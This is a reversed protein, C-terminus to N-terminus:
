NLVVGQWYAQDPRPAGNCSNCDCNGTYNSMVNSTIADHNKWTLKTNIWSTKEMQLYGQGPDVKGTGNLFFVRSNNGVGKDWDSNWTAEENVWDSYSGEYYITVEEGSYRNGDAIATKEVDIVTTPIYVAHLDPYSPFANAAISVIPLGNVYAPIKVMDVGKGNNFGGVQYSDTEGDGNEDIPILSVSGDYSYIPFIAVDAGDNFKYGSLAAKKTTEGKENTIHVEWHDFKCDEVAPAEVSNAMETIHSYSKNTFTGTALVNGQQDIFMATYKNAFSPYLVVNKNHGAPIEEMKTSGANVWYDLTESGAIDKLNSEATSDATSVATSNDTIYRVNLLQGNYMYAITYAYNEITVGAHKTAGYVGQGGGYLQGFSILMDCEDGDQHVHNSDTVQNGNADLPHGYRPNAYASCNEGEEVRVWPYRAGPNNSNTFQCYHYDAWSGLKVVVNECTLFNATATQATKGNAAPTDTNGILMGARRYAHWKYASTVDNYVDLRAAVTVNEMIVYTSDNDDWRGGIVGGVPADFDGWLSGVVVDYGVQINKFIHTNSEFMLSGDANRRPSVEGVVGGTARQYNAIKSNYISINEFTCNGQSYGVLIGMDVCEMTINANIMKVNKITAEVVSAFLGGGAMSYSYKSGLDWGHQYLGNITYGAGDFTGNFTKGDSMYKKSEYGYGIPDFNVNDLYIDNSLQIFQGEYTVGADVQDRFYALQHADAILYPDNETGNGGAFATASSGDWTNNTDAIMSVESFSAMAIVVDGTLPDYSFENHNVPTDVQIMAVTEGNEVHYLRINGNNMGAPLCNKLTVLVPVTNDAVVGEVHIDLPILVESDKPNLDADSTEKPTVTLTLSDTDLKAGAPVTLSIDNESAVADETVIGDISQVEIPLEIETDVGPVLIGEINHTSWDETVTAYENLMSLVPAQQKYTLTNWIDNVEEVLQKLSRTVTQGFIYGEATKIYARGYIPMTSNRKNAYDSNNSNMIGTTLTGTKEGSEFGYFTSRGCLTDLNEATPEAAVSLAIGYSEVHEAVIEDGAFNSKYYVGVSAARLTIAYIDLNIRHFSDGVQLYGEAAQVNGTANTVHGYVGDAVTYDDTASDMCYLTGGTVTVNDLHHGNLDITMDGQVTLDQTDAELVTIEDGSLVTSNGTALAVPSAISLLIALVCLFSLKKKM